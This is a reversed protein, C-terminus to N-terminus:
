VRQKKTRPKELDIEEADEDEDDDEDDDSDMMSGGATGTFYEIAEPFIENAITSGIDTVDKEHEFFNFFSGGDIADEDDEDDLIRPYLKTLANAPDKWDIKMASPKVNLMFDFALNAESVGDADPKEFEADGTPLYKFEKTLVKNTFFPNEKFYFEITFCRIEQPDRVIWIDELYSLATIDQNHQTHLSILAHNMLAVGWFKEIGKFVERRKEYVPALQALAHRETLLEAKAQEKGIAALKQAFEDSLEINALPNEETDGANRRKIGSM